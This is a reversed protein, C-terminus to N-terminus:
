LGILIAIISQPAMWVRVSGDGMRDVGTVKAGQVQLGTVKGGGRRYLADQEMYPLIQLAPVPQGTLFRPVGVAPLLLGFGGKLANPSPLTRAALLTNSTGDQIGPSAPPVAALLLGATFRGGPGLDVQVKQTPM